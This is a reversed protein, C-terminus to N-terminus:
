AASAILHLCAAAVGAEADAHRGAGGAGSISVAAAFALIAVAYVAAKSVAVAGSALGAGAGINWTIDWTSAATANARVKATGARALHAAAWDAEGAFLHASGTAAADDAVEALGFLALATTLDLRAM